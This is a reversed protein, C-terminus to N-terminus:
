RPYRNVDAVFVALIRSPPFLGLFCFSSIFLLYKKKAAAKILKTRLTVIQNTRSLWAWAVYTPMQTGLM